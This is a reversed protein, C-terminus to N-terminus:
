AMPTSGALALDSMFTWNWTIRNLGSSPTVTGALKSAWGPSMMPSGIRRSTGTESPVPFFVLGM